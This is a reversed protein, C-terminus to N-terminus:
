IRVGLLYLVIILMVVLLIGIRYKEELGVLGLVWYAIALGIIAALITLILTVM